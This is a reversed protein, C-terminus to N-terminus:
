MAMMAGMRTDGSAESLEGQRFGDSVHGDDDWAGMGLPLPSRLPRLCGVRAFELMMSPELTGEIHVHLEAKPM